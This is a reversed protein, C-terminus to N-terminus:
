FAGSQTVSGAAIQWCTTAGAPLTAPCATKAGPATSTTPYFGWTITATQYSFAGILGPPDLPIPITGTLTAGAPDTCNESIQSLSENGVFTCVLNGTAPAAVPVTATINVSTQVTITATQALAIAALALALPYARM